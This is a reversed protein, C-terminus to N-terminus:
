KNRITQAIETVRGMIRANDCRASGNREFAELIAERGHKEVAAASESRSDAIRAREPSIDEIIRAEPNNLNEDAQARICASTIADDTLNSFGGLPASRARNRARAEALAQARYTEFAQASESLSETIRNREASLELMSHKKGAFNADAQMRICARKIADPSENYPVIM